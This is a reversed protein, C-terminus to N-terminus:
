LRQEILQNGLCQGLIGRPVTFLGTLLREQSM